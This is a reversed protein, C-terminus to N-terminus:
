DDARELLIRYKAKQLNVFIAGNGYPNGGYGSAKLRARGPSSLYRDVTFIIEPFEGVFFGFDQGYIVEGVFV